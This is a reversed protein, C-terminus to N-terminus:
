EGGLLTELDKRYILDMNFELDNNEQSINTINKYTTMNSITDLQNALTNYVGTIKIYQPTNLVYKVSTNNTGLWTTWQELTTIGSPVYFILQQIYQFLNGIANDISLHFHSCIIKDIHRNTDNPNYIDSFYRSARYYGSSSNVGWGSESGNLIDEGIEKKLYWGDNYPEYQTQTSGLEIMVNTTNKDVCLVLYGNHTPTITKSTIGNEWINHAELISNNSDVLCSGRQSISSASTSMTWSITYTKNAELYVCNVYSTSATSNTYSITNGITTNPYANKTEIPNFLNKGSPIIFTDKYTSIKNLTLPITGYPYYTNENDGYELQMTAITKTYDAKSTHNVKIAIWTHTSDTTFTQKCHNTSGTLGIVNVGVSGVQPTSDYFAFGGDDTSFNVVEGSSNLKDFSLTYKTKPKLQLYITKNVSSSVISGNSTNIYADLINTTDKNIFNEVPLNLVYDRYDFAEYPSVSNGKELQIDSITYSANTTAVQLAVIMYSSTPTLNAYKNTKDVDIFETISSLSTYTTIPTDSYKIIVRNVSSTSSEVLSGYSITYNTGVSVPINWWCWGNTSGTNSFTIKSGSIGITQYTSSRLYYTDNLNFLNRNNVRVVNDGSVSHITQPYSPNPSPTGGVYPEVNATLSSDSAVLMPMLKVKNLVGGSNIRLALYLDNGNDEIQIPNTDSLRQINTRNSTSIRYSLPKESNIGFLSSVNSYNYEKLYYGVCQSSNFNGAYFDFYTHASATGNLTYSGDGNNTITIDNITQTQINPLLNIGSYQVQSTNGFLDIEKIKLNSSDNLYLTEGTSTGKPIQDLLANNEAIVEDLQAQSVEGNTVDFTETDGNDFTITYTDVSGSTSTKQISAIGNGNTIDFTTTNGNTFLITYTDVLGTTGTKTISSIGNGTLGIPGQIGQIGQIGQPGQEGQPGQIGSAGSFDALYHWKYTPEEQEEKVWLTANEQTEIDGSIMVYDGVNMNNYDDVMAQITSYTKKIQFPNGQPGIPGQPGQVGQIGQPGQPGQIGQPGQPGEPGQEGDYVEKTDTDGNRDTTTIYLTNGTKTQSINVREAGETAEECAEITDEVEKLKANILALKTPYEENEELQANISPDVVLTFQKSHYLPVSQVYYEGLDAKVPEQVETYTTGDYTYYTHNPNIETDSTLIFRANLFVLFQLTLTGEQCLSNYIPVSYTEDELDMNIYGKTGSPLVFDLQGIGQLFEDDFEVDFTQILNDNERALYKDPLYVRGNQRNVKIKM